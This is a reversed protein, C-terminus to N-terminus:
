SVTLTAVMGAERHGPVTCYASYTGKALPTFTLTTTDGPGAHVHFGPPVDGAAHQHGAPMAGAMVQLGDVQFDHEVTDTNRLSFRVAQREHLEVAAPTFRYDKAGV